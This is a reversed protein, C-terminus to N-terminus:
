AEYEQIKAMFRKRIEPPRTALFHEREDPKLAMLARLTDVPSKLVPLPPPVPITKAQALGPAPAPPVTAIQAYVLASFGPGVGLVPLLLFIRRFLPIMGTDTCPSCNSM